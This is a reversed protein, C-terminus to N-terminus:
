GDFQSSCPKESSSIEKIESLSSEQLFTNFNESCSTCLPFLVMACLYYIFKMLEIIVNNNYITRLAMRLKEKKRPIWVDNYFQGHADQIVEYIYTKLYPDGDKPEVYVYGFESTVYLKDEVLGCTTVSPTPTYKESPGSKPFKITIEWEGSLIFEIIHYDQMNVPKELLNGICEELELAINQLQIDRWYM